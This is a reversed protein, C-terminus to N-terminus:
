QMPSGHSGAIDDQESRVAQDRRLTEQESPALGNADTVAREIDEDRKCFRGTLDHTLVLQQGKGPRMHHHAFPVQPCRDSAQAFREAIALASDAVDRVHRPTAIAEDCRNNALCCLRRRRPRSRQRRSQGVHNAAIVGDLRQRCAQEGPPKDAHYAWAAHALRSHSDRDSVRQEIFEPSCYIEDVQADDGTRAEDGASYSSYQADGYHRLIREGTKPSKQGIAPNQQHEVVALMDNVGDRRQCLAQVAFRSINM